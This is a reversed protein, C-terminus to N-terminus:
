FIIMLIMSIITAVIISSNNNNNKNNNNNNKNNKINNYSYLHISPSVFPQIFLSINILDHPETACPKQRPLLKRNFVAM